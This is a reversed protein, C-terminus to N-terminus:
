FQSDLWKLYKEKNEDSFIANSHLLCMQMQFPAFFPWLFFDVDICLGYNILTLLTYNFINAVM